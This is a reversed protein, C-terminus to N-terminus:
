TNTRGNLNICSDAYLPTSNLKKYFLQAMDLGRTSIEFSEVNKKFQGVINLACEYSLDNIYKKVETTKLRICFLFDINGKHAIVGVALLFLM